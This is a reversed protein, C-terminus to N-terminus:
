WQYRNLGGNADNSSDYWSDLLEFWNGVDDITPNLGDACWKIKGYYKGEGM